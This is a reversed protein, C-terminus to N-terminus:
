GRVLGTPDLELIAHAFYFHYDQQFKEFLKAGEKQYMVLPDQQGYAQLHIGERLEVMADLHIVWMQDMLNLYVEKEIANLTNPPFQDRVTKHWGIIKEVVEQGDMAVVEDFSHPFKTGGLLEQQLRFYYEQTHEDEPLNTPFAREAVERIIKESSVGLKNRELLEDREKYVVKRQLDIVEDYSLLDKRIDYNAAEIRKQADLVVSHIKRHNVPKGDRPHRRKLKSYLKTWKKSEFQQLLDDELSIMFKSFGPDGRRGSRGMLQLDIRRSEHRETGIVALGGLRHVDPDLKIDTGRGAMNTALTVMGRKGARAIIEAEQAHNKANLVQHPIGAETLLESIWENSKISSTGILTPQGKEYRWSVEYVIARGKEKKTYFVDDPMDERNVRLNTPIVVVDTGYIQRFEEAETKATGTMGAIKKYMRFYNQITITALTRAEEKVEVGEKAEIAQHLGDNFRRGPLARGTHPDIILVENDLVVYDKDKHMLFHARMLLMTIRLLPQNEAEYLSDVEWFRQAKEIGADNLWCFRKHEEIEYDDKMMTKVLENATLYLDLNEEKRDSILLPTRAEDILISDAEDILVFDLSSQVKDDLQRVMNDRLYDFGFESATGYIVDATYLAKKQAKDLGSLNLGVSIGLYELIQGIEERDRKALYDNATILHVHNGRIVEIYIVFLSVLTKGEGTKMEAIKGEGLVLAGILQVIVADLGLIRSAAERALAFINVIDREPIERERYKERWIRTQEQLEEQDMYKYLGEKKVVQRAVERYAKVIKRDDYNQNM